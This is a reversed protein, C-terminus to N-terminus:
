TSPPIAVQTVTREKAKKEEAALKNGYGVIVTSGTLVVLGAIV